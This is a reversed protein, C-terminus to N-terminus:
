GNLTFPTNNALCVCLRSYLEHLKRRSPEPGAARVLRRALCGQTLIVNLPDRCPSSLPLVMGALHRWLDGTTVPKGRAPGAYGLMRAYDPNGVLARDGRRITRGLLGALWRTPWARQTDYDGWREAVLGRLTEIVLCAIAMDMGPCEQVDLLRIEITNRSFRAIAGRANVWEHRLVGEPDLTQLDRYINQLIVRRYDRQTFVPEPIVAGTVRPVAAANNRYWVLRNDMYGTRRGECFPTSAALAPLMPLLLRVAAHLRGFEKDGNFPLNIHVSQLNSWGHGRCDFIRDFARYIRSSGHPWLRTERAPDMWPHAGTPMLQAGVAALQRNIGRIGEHFQGALGDLLPVPGDTKLEIVHAVLENSWRLKGNVLERVPRGRPGRLVRDAAPFVNLDADVIMYEIEAGVADFLHFNGAADLLSPTM